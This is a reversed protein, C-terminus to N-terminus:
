TNYHGWETRIGSPGRPMELSRFATILHDTLDEGEDGSDDSSSSSSWYGLNLQIDGDGELEEGGLIMWEELPDDSYELEQDQGPHLGPSSLPSHSSDQLARGTSLSFALVLPPSPDRTIRSARETQKKSVNSYQHHNFSFGLESESSSYGEVFFRNDKEGEKEGDEHYGM